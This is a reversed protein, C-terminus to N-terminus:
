ETMRKRMQELVKKELRSIQVQSIGLKEATQTQTKDEFYRLRIISQERPPLNSIIENLMISNVIKDEECVKDSIREILTVSNGDNGTYMTKQLSDVEQAAEMALTIEECSIGLELSLENVTLSRGNDANEREQIAKIKAAAEKLSRSVKLMGDDRLFRKIEGMIMPVAYTSFKVDYSFDFKQISKILGIAGLQYLDDADVGRNLFRKVVSWILGSNEKVLEDAAKTNGEAAAMILEKTKDM